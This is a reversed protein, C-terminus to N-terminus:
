SNPFRMLKLFQQSFDDRFSLEIYETDATLESIESLYSENLLTLKAGQGASNGVGVIQKKSAEPLLGIRLASNKTLYNGFAGALFVKDIEAPNVSLEEMLIEIGARIAGKALQLERIDQQTVYVRPNTESLLFAPQNNIEIFRDTLPSSSNEVFNGKPALLNTRLLEAVLDVLGSGCIGRPQQNEVVNLELNNENIKVKTIAGGRASMGKTINAAEFAPGAATSAAILRSASGCVIEGNTGIDVFLNVQDKKHLETYLMGSTTDSGVYGSLAPLLIVEARPNITLGSESGELYETDQLVPIYPSQDMNTPEIGVFLHMMTPNGSVTTKVIENSKVGSESKCREILDNIGRVVLERLEALGDEAQRVHQIRSVVDGAIKSQPNPQSHVAIEQGTELNLCYVAITTTGIDIALGYYDTSNSYDARIVRQGNHVLTLEYGGERLVSPLRQLLSLPFRLPSALSDTIRKVDPRQDEHSPPALNLNERYVNPEIKLDQVLKNLLTKSEVPQGISPLQITLNSTVTAQCALRIGDNLESTSFFRNDAPTKPLHGEVVRIWCKGCTGNGGCPNNINFGAEILCELLNSNPEVKIQRDNPQVTIIRQESYQNM